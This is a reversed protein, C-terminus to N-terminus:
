EEEKLRLKMKKMRELNKKIYIREIDMEGWIIVKKKKEDLWEKKDM